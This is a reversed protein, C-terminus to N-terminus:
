DATTHQQQRRSPVFLSAVLGAVAIIGGATFAAQAGDAIASPGSGTTNVAFVGVLIALGAAGLLQQITTLAASGHAHLEDPLSGLSLTFIPTWALSQGACILVFTALLVWKSSTHDITTLFWWGCAIITAGTIMLTRAGLRHYLKGAIVSGLVIMLGGPAMLLGTAFVGLGLAQQYVLPLIVSTSFAGAVLFAFQIAPITFARRRFVRMDLLPSSIRQLRLQRLVFGAVGLLGLPLAAWFSTPIGHGAGEGVASLGYVLAGFGVAALALSLVDFTTTTQAPPNPMKLAGIVLVFAALPLVIIFLWRWSLQAMVVGSFAPALAPAVSIVATVLAMMQSRRAPAVIGFTTTLLLPVLVGTGLAQVIRGTLLMAFGPAGACIITGITFLAMSATFVHRLRFRRLIYGTTPIIVALTLAYATTLWQGTSATVQLEAMITPLAVGLMLESVLAVSASAALVAITIIQTSTLKDANPSM